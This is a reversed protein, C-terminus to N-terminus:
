CFIHPSCSGQKQKQAWPKYLHAINVLLPFEHCARRLLRETGTIMRSRGRECKGGRLIGCVRPVKSQLVFFFMLRAGVGVFLSLRTTRCVVEFQVIYTGADWCPRCIHLYFKRSRDTAKKVTPDVKSISKYNTRRICIEGKSRTIATDELNVPLIQLHM